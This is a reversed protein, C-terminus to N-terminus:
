RYGYCYLYSYIVATIASAQTFGSTCAPTARTVSFGLTYYLSVILIWFVIGAEERSRFPLSIRGLSRFVFKLPAPQCTFHLSSFLALYITLPRIPRVQSYPLLLWIFPLVIGGSCCASHSFVLHNSSGFNDLKSPSTLIPSKPKRIKPISRQNTQLMGTLHSAAPWKPRDAAPVAV